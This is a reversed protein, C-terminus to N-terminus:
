ELRTRAASTGAGPAGPEISAPVVAFTHVGKLGKQATRSHTAATVSQMTVAICLTLLMESLCLLASAM